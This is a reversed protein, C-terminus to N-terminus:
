AQAVLESDSVDIDSEMDMTEADSDDSGEAKEVTVTGNPSATLAQSVKPRGSSSPKTVPYSADPLWIEPAWIETAAPVLPLIPKKEVPTLATIKDKISSLLTQLAERNKDTISPNSIRGMVMKLQDTLGQLLKKRRDEIDEKKKKEELVKGTELQM